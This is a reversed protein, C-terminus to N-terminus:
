ENEGGQVNTCDTAHICSVIATWSGSGQYDWAFRVCPDGKAIKQGCARCTARGSGIAADAGYPFASSNFDREAIARRMRTIQYSEIIRM